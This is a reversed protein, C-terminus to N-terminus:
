VAQLNHRALHEVVSLLSGCRDGLAEVAVVEVALLEHFVLFIFDQLHTRWRLKEQQQLVAEGAATGSESGDSSERVKTKCM